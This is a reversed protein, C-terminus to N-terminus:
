LTSEDDLRRIPIPTPPPGSFHKFRGPKASPTLEELIGEIESCTTGAERAADKYVQELATPFEKNCGTGLGESWGHLIAIAAATEGRVLDTAATNIDSKLKELKGVDDQSKVLFQAGIRALLPYELVKKAFKHPPRADDEKLPLIDSVEDGLCVLLARIKSTDGM